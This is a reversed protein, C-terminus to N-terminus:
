HNNGYKSINLADNWSENGLKLALDVRTKFTILYTNPSM